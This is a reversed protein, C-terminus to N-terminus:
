IVQSLGLDLEPASLSTTRDKRMKKQVSSLSQRASTVRQVLFPGQSTGMPVVAMTPSVAMSGGSCLDQLVSHGPWTRCTVPFCVRPRREQWEQELGDSGMRDSRARHSEQVCPGTGLSVHAPAM